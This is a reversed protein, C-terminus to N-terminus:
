PLAFRPGFKAELNQRVKEFQEAGINQISRLVGGKFAPYRWGLVSALDATEPEGIIGEKLTHLTEVIQIWTLRDIIESKSKQSRPFWDTLGPWETREGPSPYDYIGGGSKRGIRGASLFHSLIDLVQASQTAAGRGYQVLNRYIDALLQLSTLDAMALPGMIMGSNRACNDILWPSAGESLLFLAEQVYAMVVRSTYFGPGDKVVIPVKNLTAALGLAKTVTEESTRDGVIVELLEMQDVPAFFHTGIFRAPNPVATALNSIPFTTTNSAIVTQPKVASAVSELVRAKVDFREFVAEIIFDCHALDAIEQTLRLRESFDPEQPAGGSLLRELRARSRNAAEADTEFLTVNCGAVLASLAIGTGMLGAGLIGLSRANNRHRAARQLAQRKLEHVYIRNKTPRSTRARNFGASEIELAAEFSRELGDHFSQLLLSGANDGAPKQKRLRLYVSQLVARNSITQGFLPSRTIDISDWPQIPRPNERIWSAAKGRSDGPEIGNPMLIDEASLPNGFLLVGVAKELGVLHSLRRATGLAPLLGVDTWPWSFYLNAGSAAFRQHCALAVEFALGKLARAIFAVLPKPKTEISRLATRLADILAGETLLLAIEAEPESQEGSFELVIGEVEPDQAARSLANAFAASPLAPFPLFEIVPLNGPYHSCGYGSRYM